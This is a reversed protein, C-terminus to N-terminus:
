LVVPPEARAKQQARRREAPVGRVGELRDGGVAVGDAVGEFEQAHVLHQGVELLEPPVQGVGSAVEAVEVRGRALVDVGEEEPHRRRLHVQRHRGGVHAVTGGAPGDRLELVVSLDRGVPAFKALQIQARHGVQSTNWVSNLSDLRKRQKNVRLKRYPIKLNKAM